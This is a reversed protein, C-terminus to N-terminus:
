NRESEELFRERWIFGAKLQQNQNNLLLRYADGPLIPIEQDVNQIYDYDTNAVAANVRAIISNLNSNAGGGSQGSVICTAAQLGYRADFAGAPTSSAFDVAAAGGRNNSIFIDGVAASSFYMRLIVAIVNSGAPNRIQVSSNNAATGPISAYNGFINWAGLYRNEAGSFVQLTPTIESGLQPVPAGGKIGTAKQLFRNYHGVNIENFRM